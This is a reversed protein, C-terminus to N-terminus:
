GEEPKGEPRFAAILACLGAFFGTLVTTNLTIWEGVYALGGILSLILAIANWTSAEKLRDLIFKM